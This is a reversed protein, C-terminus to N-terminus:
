RVLSPTNVLTSHGQAIQFYLVRVQWTMYCEGGDIVANNVVWRLQVQGSNGPPVEHVITPIKNWEWNIMNDLNLRGAAVGAFPISIRGSGSAANKWFGVANLDWDPLDAAAFQMVSNVSLLAYAYNTPLTCIFVAKQSEGTDAAAITTSVSGFRFEGLPLSSDRQEESPLTRYPWPEGAVTTTTVTTAM